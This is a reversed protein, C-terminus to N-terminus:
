ESAPAQARRHRALDLALQVAEDPDTARHISQDEVDDRMLRWTALGVAPVGLRLAFALETLTGYGGRVAIVAHSAQVVLMNRFPGLATPLAIDIHPNADAFRDTPLIGVTLGGAHKAGEAAAEMMGGLGGCILIAGTRAINEGVQLGLEYEERSCHHPGIVGIRLRGALLERKNM